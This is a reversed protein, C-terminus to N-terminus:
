LREYVGRSRPHDRSRWCSSPPTPTFGARAPIIGRHSDAGDLWLQLGRALPSSGLTASMPHGGGKYVGRSRPHDRKPPSRVRRWPTFGARAPIIRGDDGLGTEDRLYVGRSRPHDPSSRPASTTCTTFGARAPIIGATMTRPFPRTPLGRALPSSGKENMTMDEHSVYVGRSRPHDRARGQDRHAPGTFGARAPIIGATMTRPFPRTPLGRALPSSGKENM